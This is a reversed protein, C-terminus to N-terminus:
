NNDIKRISDVAAILPDEETAERAEAEVNEEVSKALKGSEDAEKGLEPDDEQDEEIKGGTVLKMLGKVIKHFWYFQLCQGLCAIFLSVIKVTFHDKRDIENWHLFIHLIALSSLCVRFIFYSATLCIGNVFYLTSKEIKFIKMALVGNLFFTSFEQSVLAATLLIFGDSIFLLVTATFYMAHHLLMLLDFSKNPSLMLEFITDYLIYGMFLYYYFKCPSPIPGNLLLAQFEPSNWTYNNDSAFKVLETICVAVGCICIIVNLCSTTFNALIPVQSQLYNADNSLRDRNMWKIKHHLGTQFFVHMVLFLGTCGLFKVVEFSSEESPGPLAM